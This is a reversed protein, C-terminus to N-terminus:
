HKLIKKVAARDGSMIKLYYIGAPLEAVPIIREQGTQLKKGTIDYLEIGTIAEDSHIHIVTNVPNPYISVNLLPEVKSVFTGPNTTTDTSTTNLFIRYDDWVSVYERPNLFFIGQMKKKYSPDDTPTITNASWTKGGDFTQLVTNSSADSNSTNRFNIFLTDAGGPLHFIPSGAPVPFKGQFTFSSWGTITKFVHAENTTSNIGFCYGTNDDMMEIGMPTLNENLLKIDVRNGSPEMESIRMIDSYWVLALVKGSPTVTADFSGGITGLGEWSAGGDDSVLLQGARRLVIKSLDASYRFKIGLYNFTNSFEKRWTAGGDRSVFINSKRDAMLVLTDNVVECAFIDESGLPQECPVFTRGKNRSYAYSGGKGAVVMVNGKASVCTNAKVLTQLKKWPRNIGDAYYIESTAKYTIYNGSGYWTNAVSTFGPPTTYSVPTWTTCTDTSLVLGKVPHYALISDAHQTYILKVQDTPQQTLQIWTNGGDRTRYLNGNTAAGIGNLTDFPLFSTFFTAPAGAPEKKEFSNGGDYSVYFKRPDPMVWIKEMTAAVTKYSFNGQTATAAELVKTWTDGDISHYFEGNFRDVEKIGLFGNSTKHAASIGTQASPTITKWNDATYQLQNNLTIAVGKDGNTLMMRFIATSDNLYVFDHTALDYEVLRNDDDKGMSLMVKNDNRHYHTNIQAYSQFHTYGTQAFSSCSLLLLYLLCSNKM